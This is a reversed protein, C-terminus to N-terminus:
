GRWSRWSWRSRRSRPRWSSARPPWASLLSAAGTSRWSKSWCAGNGASCGELHAWLEDVSMPETRAPAAFLPELVVGAAQRMLEHLETSLSDALVHSPRSRGKAAAWLSRIGRLMPDLLDLPFDVAAAVKELIDRPVAREGREYDSLQSPEMRLRRAIERQELLRFNRLLVLALRSEPDNADPDNRKRKEMDVGSSHHLM